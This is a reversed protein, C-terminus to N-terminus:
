EHYSALEAGSDATVLRLTLVYGTGLPTVEGDVVAKAGERQAIERALALDVGTAPPRDMRRLTGAIAAPSLITVVDSQGLQARVAESVVAGLASDSGRVRFDTVVLRDRAELKGAALLSGAPGVGLARLAM